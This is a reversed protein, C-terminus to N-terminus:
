CHPLEKQSGHYWQTAQKTTPWEENRRKRSLLQDKYDLWCEIM